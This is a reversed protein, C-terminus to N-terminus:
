QSPPPPPPPLPVPPPPPPPPPPPASQLLSRSRARVTNRRGVCVGGSKSCVREGVQKAAGASLMTIAIDSTCFERLRLLGEASVFRGGHSEFKMSAGPYEKVAHLRAQLLANADVRVDQKAVIDERAVELRGSHPSSGVRVEDEVTLPSVSTVKATVEQARGRVGKRRVKRRVEQGVELASYVRLRRLLDADNLLKKKKKKKKQAIVTASNDNITTILSLISVAQARDKRLIAAQYSAALVNLWPLDNALATTKAPVNPTTTATSSSSSSSTTATTATAAAARMSHKGRLMMEMVATGTISDTKFANILGASLIDVGRQLHMARQDGIPGNTGINDASPIAKFSQYQDDTIYKLSHMIEAIGYLSEEVVGALVTSSEAKLHEMAERLRENEAEADQSNKEAVELKNMLSRRTRQHAGSVQHATEAMGRAVEKREDTGVGTVKATTGNPTTVQVSRDGASIHATVVQDNTSASTLQLTSMGSRTRRGGTLFLREVNKDDDAADDDDDSTTTTTTTTTSTDKNKANYIDINTLNIGGKSASRLHRANRGSNGPARRNRLANSGEQNSHTFRDVASRARRTRTSTALATRTGSPNLAMCQACLVCANKPRHKKTCPGCKKFVEGKKGRPM